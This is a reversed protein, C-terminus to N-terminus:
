GPPPPPPSPKKKEGQPREGGRDQHAEGKEEASKKRSGEYLEFAALRGDLGGARLPKRWAPRLGLHGILSPEGFYLFARAGACRRKLFNGLSKYFAPLSSRQGLRIGYPPNCVIVKGALDRRRRADIRELRVAEGYPLRRLNEAACAVAEASIDSGAIRGEPLPRIRRDAAEKVERWCRADFDPLFEFGFRPRLYGAPIRCALMLAEALITGSGCFPDVLPTDGDWEAFRIAAAAVTEQMPAELARKRYGRRHLPGGSTDLSIVAHNNEIFVGIWVDPDIREVDPREGVEQRFSDVIADKVCLAAYRSHRMKSNVLNAFVAFRERVGFIERWPIQRAQRYLVEPEHCAFAALPALVRSVLRSQYNVRYLAARDAEFYLGRYTARLNRAGLQKLEEAGLEELGEAIMAFYRDNQRYLFM